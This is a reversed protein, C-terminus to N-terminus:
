ASRNKPTPKPLPRPTSPPPADCWKLLPMCPVCPRDSPDMPGNMALPLLLLQLLTSHRCSGGWAEAIICVCRVSSWMM